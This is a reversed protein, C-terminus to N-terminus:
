NKEQTLKFLIFIAKIAYNISHLKQKAIGACQRNCSEVSGNGKEEYTFSM